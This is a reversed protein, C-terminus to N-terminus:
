SSSRLIACGKLEVNFKRKPSFRIDPQTSLSREFFKSGSMWTPQVSPMKMFDDPDAIASSGIKM